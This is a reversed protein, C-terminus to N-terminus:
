PVISIVVKARAHGTELYRIAEPTEALPYTRDIVPKVKGSEIFEKLLLLDDCNSKATGMMGVKQGSGRSSLPGWLMAQFLLGVSTFGVVVAKGPDTLLRKADAVSLNGVNDMVLEYRGGHTRLDTQTYDIVHDAGLERVMEVNRTSCVGTVEAGFVKALQVAFTGVGGAAGNILVHQGAQVNGANRLGQLATVAAVPIAAAEVFSVNQPKPVIPSAEDAVVYEAFAGLGNVFMDGFVTDGVRFRTVSSGVAEVTGALDAGLVRFKPKTLGMDLRAFRPTGRMYHWDLPNVSAAHVRILLQNSQPTPTPVEELRMGAPPGYSDCVIAQM